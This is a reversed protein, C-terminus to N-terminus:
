AGPPSAVFRFDIPLHKWRGIIKNAIAGSMPIFVVTDTPVQLPSIIPLGALHHGTRNPDEDVFFGVRGELELMLWCAAISSGMIGFTKGAAAARHAADRMEGILAFHRRV